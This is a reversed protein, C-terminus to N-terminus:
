GTRAPGRREAEARVHPVDAGLPLEQEAGDRPPPARATPSSAELDRQRRPDEERQTTAPPRRRRRPTPRWRRREEPVAEVRVLDQDAQHEDVDRVQEEGPEHEPGPLVRVAEVERLRHLKAAAVSIGASRARCAAASPREREREDGRDDHPQEHEPGVAADLELDAPGRRRRRAVGPNEDRAASQVASSTEPARAPMAPANSTAPGIPLEGRVDRAAVPEGGDDDREHAAEVREAAHEAADHERANTIPPSSACDRTPRGAETLPTNWPM